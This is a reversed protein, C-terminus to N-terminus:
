QIEFLAVNNELVYTGNTILLTVDKDLSLTNNISDVSIIKSGNQLGPGSISGHLNAGTSILENV